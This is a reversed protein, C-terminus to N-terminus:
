SKPRTEQCSTARSTACIDDSRWGVRQTFGQVADLDNSVATSFAAVYLDKGLVEVVLPKLGPYKEFTGDKEIQALRATFGNIGKADLPVNNIDKDSSRARAFLSEFSKGFSSPPLKATSSNTMNSGIHSRLEFLSMKSGDPLTLTPKFYDQMVSYNSNIKEQDPASGGSKLFDSYVKQLMQTEYGKQALQKLSAIVGADPNPMQEFQQIIQQLGALSNQTVGNPGAAEAAVGSEIYNLRLTQGNGLPVVLMKGPLNALASGMSSVVSLNSPIKPVGSVSVTPKTGISSSFMGSIQSGLLSLTAVGLIGVLAVPLAYETLSQGTSKLSFPFVRM